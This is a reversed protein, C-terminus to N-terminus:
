SRSDMPRQCLILLNVLLHTSVCPHGWACNPWLPPWSFKMPCLGDPALYNNTWFKKRCIWDRIPFFTIHFTVSKTACISVSYTKTFSVDVSEAKPLFLWLILLLRQTSNMVMETARTGWFASDCNVHGESWKPDGASVGENVSFNSLRESVDYKEKEGKSSFISNSKSM